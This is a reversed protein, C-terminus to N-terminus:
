FNKSLEFIIVINTNWTLSLSVLTPQRKIFSGSSLADSDPPLAVTFTKYRSASMIRQFRLQNCPPEFGEQVVKTSTVLNKHKKDYFKM